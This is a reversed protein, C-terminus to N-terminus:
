IKNPSIRPYEKAIISSTFRGFLSFVARFFLCLLCISADQSSISHSALAFHFYKNVSQLYDLYM